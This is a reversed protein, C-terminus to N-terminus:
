LVDWNQEVSLKDNRIAMHHNRLEAHACVVLLVRTMHYDGRFNTTNVLLTKEAYKVSSIKILLRHLCRLLSFCEM